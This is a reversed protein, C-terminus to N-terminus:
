LSQAHARQQHRGTREADAFAGHIHHMHVVPIHLLAANAAAQDGPLADLAVTHLHLCNAQGAVQYIQKAAHVTQVTGSSKPLAEPLHQHDQQDQPQHVGQQDIFPPHPMGLRPGNGAGLIQLGIDVSLVPVFLPSTLVTPMAIRLATRAPIMVM